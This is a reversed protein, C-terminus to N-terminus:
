RRSYWYVGGAVAAVGLGIGLASQWDLSGGAEPISGGFAPVLYATWVKPALYNHEEHTFDNGSNMPSGPKVYDYWALSGAAHVGGSPTPMPPKPQVVALKVGTQAEVKGVMEVMTERATRLINLAANASNNTNTFVCVKDGKLVARAMLKPYGEIGGGFASDHMTMGTLRDVDADIKAVENLLGWGASFSALAIGGWAEMPQGSYTRVLNPLIRGDAGRMNAAIGQFFDSGTGSVMKCVTPNKWPIAKMDSDRLIAPGAFLILDTM